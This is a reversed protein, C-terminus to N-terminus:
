RRAKAWWAIPRPSARRAGRLLKLARDFQRARRDSWLFGYQNRVSPPLLGITVLRNLWAVPGTVLSLPPFLVAEALAHADRGVTIRGSAFERAMYAQLASWTRPVDEAVAGLAVATEVGEACYQDKEGVTLPTVLTDYTTLASDIFTVHVWLV